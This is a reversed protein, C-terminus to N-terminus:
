QQYTLAKVGIDTRYQMGEFRILKVAAYAKDLASQLTEGTATVGLVRGGNTVLGGKNGGKAGYPYEAPNFLPPSSPRATGAQFIVIDDLKEAEEIGTIELGKKYSGPYGGSALVICCAFQSAWELKIQSLKGDVSARLIEYLDTKLLRMYSQTEPDGFRANFELVKPQGGAVILGPYLLGAFPSGQKKLGALAPKVIDLKVKDLLKKKVWPVPAVTGMGGTNPGLDNDFVPKHDQAPPFLVFSQGDCFAHISIEQGELFEEVVVESGAEGFIKEVMIRRLTKEAEDLNQCIVVGKGLALGSAKIVIPAGIGKAYALAPTFDSFNQFSATPINQRQMLGKAFVKSAEVQAAAKSPGFIKLSQTQFANVIGSALPDDPGVVTLHINHAKAFDILKEFETVGINVNKGVQATGPNGPAIYLKGMQPSQSLKWALAHERGGSGILLINKPM